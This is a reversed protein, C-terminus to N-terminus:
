LPHWLEVIILEVCPCPSECRAPAKLIEGATADGIANANVGRAERGRTALEAQDVHTGDGGDDGHGTGGQDTTANAVGGVDGDGSDEWAREREGERGRREDGLGDVVGVM